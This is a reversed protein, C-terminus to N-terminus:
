EANRVRGKVCMLLVRMALSALLMSQGFATVVSLGITAHSLRPFAAVPVM